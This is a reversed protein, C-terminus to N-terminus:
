AKGARPPAGAHLKVCLRAGGREDEVVSAGGGHAIAYERVISLGVGSGKVVGNGAARGQYFPEFVRDRDDPAIGAGEDHVGITVEDGERKAFVEITGSVPSHKIANSILNDLIVRVKDRDALMTLSPPELKLSFRLQKARAALDHDDRVQDILADLAVVDREIAMRRFQAEGLLLLDEILRQLELSNRRLIAALEHQTPTLNGGFREVLLDTSERVAALPTKLEHAVHRLFRNKQQELGLLESRLWELRRGLRELDRPGSVQVPETLRGAGIAGIARDLDRIPRALVFMVVFVVLIAVPAAAAAQWYLVQQAQQAIADMARSETEIRLDSQAIIEEALRNAEAFQANVADLAAGEVAPDAMAAFVSQEIRLVRDLRPRQSADFPLDTLRQATEILQQRLALHAEPITREDLIAYRKASRELERLLDAIRRSAQTMQVAQFLARQGKVALRDTYLASSALGILLPAVVLALGTVLLGLFSRPYVMRM